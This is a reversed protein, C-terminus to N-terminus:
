RFPVEMPMLSPPHCSCQWVMIIAYAAHPTGVLGGDISTPVWGLRSYNEVDHLKVYRLVKGQM